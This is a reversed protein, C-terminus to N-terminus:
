ATRKLVIATLDDQQQTGDSFELAAKYLADIIAKPNEQRVQRVVQELREPGFQQGATNEWECFGDTILVLLDGESLHLDRPPDACV